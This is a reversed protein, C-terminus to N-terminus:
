EDEQWVPASNLAKAECVPCPMLAGREAENMLESIRTDADFSAEVGYQQNGCASCQYAFKVEIQHRKEPRDKLKAYIIMM